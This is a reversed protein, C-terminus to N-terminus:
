GIRRIEVFIKIIKVIERRVFHGTNSAARCIDDEWNAWLSGSGVSLKRALDANSSLSYVYLNAKVSIVEIKPM